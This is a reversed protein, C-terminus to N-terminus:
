RRHIDLSPRILACGTEPVAIVAVLDHLLKRRMVEPLSEAGSAAIVFAGAGGVAERRYYDIVEPDGGFVVGNVAAASGLLRARAPAAAEGLNDAGNGLINVIGRGGIAEAEALLSGAHDLAGSLDTLRGSLHGGARPAERDVNVPVRTEIQRSAAEAEVASGVVTWPLVEFRHHHWLFVAVAVRGNPGRQVAAVFDPARLADALAGLQARVEEPQVSDSIDIGTVINADTPLDASRGPAAAFLALVLAVDALTHRTM